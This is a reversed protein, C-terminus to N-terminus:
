LEGSLVEKDGNVEFNDINEIEDDDFGSVPPFAYSPPPPRLAASFCLFSPPHPTAEFKEIKMGVNENLNCLDVFKSM